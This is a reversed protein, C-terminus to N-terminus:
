LGAGLVAHEGGHWTEFLQEPAAAGPILDRAVRQRDTLVVGGPHQEEHELLLPTAITAGTAPTSGSRRSSTARRQLSCLAASPHVTREQAGHSPSWTTESEARTGSTPSSSACHAMSPVPICNTSSCAPGARPRKPSRRSPPM